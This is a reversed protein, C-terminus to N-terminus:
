EDARGRQVTQAPPKGLKLPAPRFTWTNGGDELATQRPYLQGAVSVNACTRIGVTGNPNPNLYAEALAYLIQATNLERGAITFSSPVMNSPIPRWTEDALQPALRVAMEMLDKVRIEFGGPRLVGDTHLPGYVNGLKVSEPLKGKESLAALSATFLSFSDALSLYTGNARAFDPPFTGIYRYREILDQAAARMTDASIETGVPSVAMQKLVRPSVFRSGPNAPFFETVLWKLIAEEQRYADLVQPYDRYAPVASPVMPEEPHDYAWVLPSFRPIGDHWTQLHRAYPTVQLHLVRIRSRDLGALLKKLGDLPEDTNARRIDGTSTDSSRLINLEWYLESSTQPVSSVIAGFGATSGSYGHIGRAPDRDPIGFMVSPESFRRMQHVM